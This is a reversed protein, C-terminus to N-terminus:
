RRLLLGHARAFWNQPCSSGGPAEAEGKDRKNGSPKELLRPMVCARCSLSLPGHRLALPSRGDCPEELNTDELCAAYGLIDVEM